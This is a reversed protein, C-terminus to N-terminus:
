MLNGLGPLEADGCDCIDLSVLNQAQSLISHLSIVTVNTFSLDLRHLDTCNKALVPIFSDSVPCGSLELQELKRSHHSLSQVLINSIHYCNELRFLQLNPCLSLASDLDGMYLNDAASASFSLEKIYSSYPLAPLPTTLLGMLREFSDSAQLQPAHYLVQAIENCWKKCTLMFALQDQHEPICDLIKFLVTPPIPSM